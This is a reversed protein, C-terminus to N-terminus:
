LSGPIAIDLDGLSDALDQNVQQKVRLESCKSVTITHGLLKIKKNKDVFIVRMLEDSITVVLSIRDGKLLKPPNVITLHQAADLVRNIGLTIIKYVLGQDVKGKLIKPVIFTVTNSDNDIHFQPSSARYGPMWKKGFLETIKRASAVDSTKITISRREKNYFTKDLDLPIDNELQLMLLQDKLEISQEPAIETADERFIHITFKTSTIPEQQGVFAPKNPSQSSLLAPTETKPLTETGGTNVDQHDPSAPKSLPQSALITPTNTKPITDLLSLQQHPVITPPLSLSSSSGPPTTSPPTTSDKDDARPSM